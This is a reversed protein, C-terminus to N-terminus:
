CRRCARQCRHFVACSNPLQILSRSPIRSEAGPCWEQPESRSGNSDSAGHHLTRKVPLSCFFQQDGDNSPRHTDRDTRLRPRVARLRAFIKPRASRCRSGGRKAFRSRAHVALTSAITRCTMSVVRAVPLASSVPLQILIQSQTSGWKTELHLPRQVDVYRRGSGVTGQM